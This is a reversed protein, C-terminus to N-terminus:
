WGRARWEPLASREAGLTTDAGHGPHVVTADPLRGFVKTELDDMLQSFAGADGWTGGPGGPFLSDGTIITPANSPDDLDAEHVLAVGGPTHGTLRVVRLVSSGLTIEDGDALTRAVPTPLAAADPEGALVPAGTEAVVAELAGWHDQHQHTTVVGTLPRGAILALLTQPEAAADVLLLAGTPVDELLYANNDMPGVSVKTLRLGGLDRVQAPGGAAVVGDYGAPQDAAPGSDRPTTVGGGQGGHRDQRVGWRSEFVRAM